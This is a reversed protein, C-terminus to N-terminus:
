AILKSYLSCPILTAYVAGKRRREEERDNMGMKSETQMDIEKMIKNKKNKAKIRQKRRNDSSSNTEKHMLLLHVLDIGQSYKRREERKM